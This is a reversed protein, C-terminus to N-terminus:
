IQIFDNKKLQIFPNSTSKKNIALFNIIILNLIIQSKVKLDTMKSTTNISILHFILTHTAQWIEMKANRMEENYKKIEKNRQIRIPKKARKYADEMAQDHKKKIKKLKKLKDQNFKEMKLRIEEDKLNLEAVKKNNEILRIMESEIHKQEKEWQEKEREMDKDIEQAKSQPNKNSSTINALSM